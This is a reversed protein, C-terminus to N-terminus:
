SYYQAKSPRKKKMLSLLKPPIPRCGCERSHAAHWKVRQEVTPNKPM